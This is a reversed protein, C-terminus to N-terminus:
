VDFKFFINCKINEKLKLTLTIIPKSCYPIFRGPVNAAHQHTSSTGVVRPDYQFYPVDLESNEAEELSIIPLLPKDSRINLIPSGTYQIARDIPENELPKMSEQGRRCKKINEPPNM